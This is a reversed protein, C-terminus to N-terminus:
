PIVAVCGPARVYGPAAPAVPGPPPAYYPGPGYYPHAYAGFNGPAAPPPVARSANKQMIQQQHLTNHYIISAEFNKQAQNPPQQASSLSVAGLLFLMAAFLKIGSFRKM